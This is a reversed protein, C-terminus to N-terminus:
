ARSFASPASPLDCPIAGPRALPPRPREARRGPAPPRRCAPSSSPATRPTRRCSCEPGAPVRRPLVPPTRASARGPLSPMRCGHPRTTTSSGCGETRCSRSRSTARAARAEGAAAFAAGEEPCGIEGTASRGDALDVRLTLTLEPDIRGADRRAAVLGRSSGSLFLGAIIQGPHRALHAADYVRGYCAGAPPFAREAVLGQAAATMPLALLLLAALRIPSLPM